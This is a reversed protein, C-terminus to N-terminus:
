QLNLQYTAGQPLWPIVRGWIVFNSAWGDVKRLPSTLQFSLARNSAYTLPVQIFAPDGPIYVRMEFLDCIARPHQDSLTVDLTIADSSFACQWTAFINSLSAAYSWEPRCGFPWPNDAAMGIVSTIRKGARMGAYLAHFKM